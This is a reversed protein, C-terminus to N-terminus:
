ATERYQAEVTITVSQLWQQADERWTYGTQWSKPLTDEVGTVGYTSQSAAYNRLERGILMLAAYTTAADALATPMIVTWEIQDAFRGSGLDARAQIEGSTACLGMAPFVLSPPIPGIYWAVPKTATWTRAQLAALMAALLAANM